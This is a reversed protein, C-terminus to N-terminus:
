YESSAFYGKGHQDIWEQVTKKERSGDDHAFTFEFGPDLEYWDWEDLEDDAYGCLKQVIDRAEQQTYAIIYDVDACCFMKLDKDLWFNGM